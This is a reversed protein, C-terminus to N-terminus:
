RRHPSPEAPCVSLKDIMRELDERLIITRRGAKRFTIEGRTRMNYLTAVCLGTAEAVEAVSYMRKEVTSKPTNSPTM